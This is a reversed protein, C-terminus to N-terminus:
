RYKRGHKGPAGANEFSHTTSYLTNYYKKSSATERGTSYLGASIPAFFFLDATLSSCVYVPCFLMLSFHILTRNKSIVAHAYTGSSIISMGIDLFLLFLLRRKFVLFRRPDKIRKPLSHLVANTMITSSGLDVVMSFSMLLIMFCARLVSIVKWIGVKEFYDHDKLDFYEWLIYTVLNLGDLNLTTYRLVQLISYERTGRVITLLREYRYLSAFLLCTSIVVTCSDSIFTLVPHSGLSNADLNGYFELPVFACLVQLFNTIQLLVCCSFALTQYQIPRNWRKINCNRPTKRYLSEAFLSIMMVNLVLGFYHLPQLYIFPHHFFYNRQELDTINM